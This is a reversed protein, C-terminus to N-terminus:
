VVRLGTAKIREINRMLYDGEYNLTSIAMFKYNGPFRSNLSKMLATTLDEALDRDNNDLMHCAEDLSGFFTNYGYSVTPNKSQCFVALKKPFTAHYKFAQYKGKFWAANEMRAKFEAYVVDKAQEKSVSLNVAAIGSGPGLFYYFQPNRLCMLRYVIRALMISVIFSKGSGSGCALYAHRVRPHDIRELLEVKERNIMGRLGMYRRGLVFEEMPVPKEEYAYNVIADLATVDGQQAQRVISFLADRDASPMAKIESYTEFRQKLEEETPPIEDSMSPAGPLVQM